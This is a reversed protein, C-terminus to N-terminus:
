YVSTEEVLGPGVLVVDIRSVSYVEKLFIQLQYDFDHLAIIFLCLSFMSGEVVGSNLM